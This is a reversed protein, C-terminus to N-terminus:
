KNDRVNLGAKKMYEGLVSDFVEIKGELRAVDNKYKDLEEKLAKNEKKCEELEQNPTPQKNLEGSYIDGISVNFYEAVEDYFELPANTKGSIYNYITKRSKKLNNCMTSIFEEMTINKENALKRIILSKNSTM